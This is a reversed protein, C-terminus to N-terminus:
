QQHTDPFVKSVLLYGLPSVYSAFLFVPVNASQLLVYVNTCIQNLCLAVFVLSKLALTLCSVSVLLVVIMNNLVYILHHPLIDANCVGPYKVFMAVIVFLKKLFYSLM